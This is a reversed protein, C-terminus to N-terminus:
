PRSSADSSTARARLMEETKRADMPVGLHYGQGFRCGLERLRAVQAASEVGEAITTHGLTEAIKIIAQALGTQDDDSALADVFSRDIKLIDIPFQELYALSSYGTGFDDLAIRLGLAKLTQLNQVAATTDRMMASETIEIVLKTPDFKAAALMSAVNTGTEADALEHASLNVSITVDPPVLGRTQWHRLQACAEALVFRDVVDILGVEEAFPVFAGPPLLGRLPHQWRVLAEFGVLESTELDVIPQYHVVLEKGTTTRRLDAELELREVIATHMQDRFEEYCNKGHEKAMYMALDANRLLQDGTSGPVGFTIGISATAVVETTDLMVPRRLATLIREALMVIDSHGEIYEILVAFEDGGLRAATDAQRICGQLVDAVTRLLDDGTSHGLSDNVTKFNDLDLFMVAIPRRTREMRAVAQNLRDSFLAKNALGTLSDHFAQYTLESELRARETSDRFSWVRGVVEGDVMQAKSFREFVRGDKFELVDTTEMGPHLALEENKALFIEPHVLQDLISTLADEDLQGLWFSEPLMWMDALQGNVTTIVGNADVVLLGDATSDLTASLLSLATRLEFEAVTRAAIDHATVVYGGVTPDDILNVISLEFPATELGERRLLRVEVTVPYAATALESARDIAASLAPRDEELVINNLPVFEVHEPDHGLMRTLAASTCEIDGHPSILMTIAAANHILSRFRAVEDHAVEFRRRETLDRMNFLVAGEAFWSVPRGILELLRWGSPTKARVELTTGIEKNQISVLSRGVLELDDPHVLYLASRGEYEEPTQEFMAQARANGWLVEGESGLVLVVDPLEELLRALMADETTMRPDEM